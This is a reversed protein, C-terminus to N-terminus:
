LESIDLQIKLQSVAHLIVSYNAITKLLDSTGSILRGKVLIIDQEEIPFFSNKLTIKWKM